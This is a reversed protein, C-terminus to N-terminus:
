ARCLLSSSDEPCSRSSFFGFVFPYNDTLGNVHFQFNSFVLKHKHFERTVRLHFYHSSSKQPHQYVEIKIWPTFGM